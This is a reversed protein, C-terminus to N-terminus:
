VLQNDCAFKVLATRSKLKLKKRIRSAHLEVTSETLFLRQAIERNSLGSAILRLVELERGSLSTRPQAEGADSTEDALRMKGMQELALALQSTLNSLLSLNFVQELAQRHEECNRLAPRLASAAHELLQLEKSKWKRRQSSQVVLALRGEGPYLIPTGAISFISSEFLSEMGELYPATDQEHKRIGTEELVTTKELIQAAIARPIAASSGLGLPSLDTDVYEHTVRLSDGEDKLVLCSSVKLISGLTDVASQLVYDRDLSAQLRMQLGRLSREFWIESSMEALADRPDDMSKALFVNAILQALPSSLLNRWNKNSPIELTFHLSLIGCIGARAGNQSLSLPMLLNKSTWLKGTGLEHNKNEILYASSSGAEWLQFFDFISADFRETDDFRCSAKEAIFNEAESSERRWIVAHSADTSSILESFLVGAFDQRSGRKSLALALREVSELNTRLPTERYIVPLALSSSFWCIM